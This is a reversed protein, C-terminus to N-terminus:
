YRGAWLVEQTSCFKQGTLIYHVRAVYECMKGIASVAAFLMLLYIQLIDSTSYQESTIYKQLSYLVRILPLLTVLLLNNQNNSTCLPITVSWLWDKTKAVFASQNSSTTTKYIFINYRFDTHVLPLALCQSQSFDSPGRFRGQGTLLWKKTVTM